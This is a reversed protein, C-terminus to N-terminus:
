LFLDANVVSRNKVYDSIISNSPIERGEYVLTINGIHRTDYKIKQILTNVEENKDIKYDITKNGARVRISFPNLIPMFNVDRLNDYAMKRREKELREAELRLEEKLKILKKEERIQEVRMAVFKKLLDRAKEIKEDLKRSEEYELDQLRVESRREELTYVKQPIPSPSRQRTSKSPIEFADDYYQDYIDDVDYNEEEDYDDDYESDSM